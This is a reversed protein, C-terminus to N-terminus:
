FNQLSYCLLKTSFGPTFGQKTRFKWPYLLGLFKEPSAWETSIDNPCESNCKQGQWGWVCLFCCYLSFLYRIFDKVTYVWNRSAIFNWFVATNGLSFRGERHILGWKTVQVAVGFQHSKLMRRVKKSRSIWIRYIHCSHCPMMCLEKRGSAGCLLGWPLGWMGGPQVLDWM